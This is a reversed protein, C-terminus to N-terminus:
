SYISVIARLQARTAVVDSGGLPRVTLRDGSSELQAFRESFPEGRTALMSGLLDSYGDPDPWRTRKGIADFIEWTLPPADFDNPKGPFVPARRSGDVAFAAARRVSGRQCELVLLGSLSAVSGVFDGGQKLPSLRLKLLEAASGSELPLLYAGAHRSPTAARFAALLRAEADKRGLAHCTVACYTRGTDTFALLTGSFASAAVPFPEAGPKLEAISRWLIPLYKSRLLVSDGIPVLETIPLNRVLIPWALATAGGAFFALPSLVGGSALAAISLVLLLSALLVRAPLRRRTASVQVKSKRKRGLALALYVFCLFGLPWVGAGLFALGLFGALAKAKWGM